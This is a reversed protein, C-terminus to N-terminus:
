DVAPYIDCVCREGHKLVELIRLRTPQGLAKLIEAKKKRFYRQTM